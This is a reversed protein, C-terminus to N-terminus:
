APGESDKAPEDPTPPTGKGSGQTKNVIDKTTFWLNPIYAVHGEPTELVTTRIKTRIVKGEIGGVVITDGLNFPKDAQILFGSTVNKVVDALAFSLAISFAGLSLILATLDTGFAAFVALIGIIYVVIRVAGGASREVEEDHGARRLIGTVIGSALWAGLYFAIAVVLATLITSLPIGVILVGALQIGLIGPILLLGVFVVLYLSGRALRREMREPFATRRFLARLLARVVLGVVVVAVAVGLLELLQGVTLGLGPVVADLPNGAQQLM